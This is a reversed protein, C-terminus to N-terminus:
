AEQTTYDGTARPSVGDTLMSRGLELGEAAQPSEIV